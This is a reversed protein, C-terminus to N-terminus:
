TILKTMQIVSDPHPVNFLTLLVMLQMTNIMGWLMQLSSTMLFNAVLNSVLLTTTASKIFVSGRKLNLQMEATAVSQIPINMYSSSLGAVLMMPYQLVYEDMLMEEFPNVDVV